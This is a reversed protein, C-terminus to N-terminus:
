NSVINVGEKAGSFAKVLARATQLLLVTNEGEFTNCARVIEQMRPLGSSRMYGHGGCALRLTEVALSADKTCVAKLCCAMAHLQYCLICDLCLKKSKKSTKALISFFVESFFYM